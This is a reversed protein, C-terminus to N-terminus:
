KSARPEFYFVATELAISSSYGIFRVTHTRPGPSSGVPALASRSPPKSGWGFALGAHLSYLPALSTSTRCSRVAWGRPPGPPHCPPALYPGLPRGLRTAHARKIVNSPVQSRSPTWRACWSIPYLGGPPPALGSDRRSRAALWPRYKALRWASFGFWGVGAWPAGGGVVWKRTCRRRGGLV